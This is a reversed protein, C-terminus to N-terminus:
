MIFRPNKISNQIASYTIENFTIRKTLEIPLNFVECIHWAIAEGENDNDTALIIDVSKNIEKQINKIIQKKEEIIEYNTQFNNQIDINEITKIERIHGFSAIVKYNEGLYEEIKKCKSPSEVIVLIM